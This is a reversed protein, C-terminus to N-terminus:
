MVRVATLSGTQITIDGSSTNNRVFASLYDGSSLEFLGHTAGMGTDSGTGIFRTRQTKIEPDEGNKGIGVVVTQNNSSCTLSFDFLALYLDTDRDDHQLRNNGPMSFSRCGCAETTGSAPYWVGSSAIPTAAASSWHIEGLQAYRGDLLDQFRESVIRLIEDGWVQVLGGIRGVDGGLAPLRLQPAGLSFLSGLAM